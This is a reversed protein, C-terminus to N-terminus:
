PVKGMGKACTKSAAYVSQAYVHGGFTRDEVIGPPWALQISEFTDPATEKVEMLRKFSIGPPYAETM